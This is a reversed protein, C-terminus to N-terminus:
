FNVGVVKKTKVSEYGMEMAKITNLNDEINCLPERNEKISAILEELVGAFSMHWDNPYVPFTTSYKL